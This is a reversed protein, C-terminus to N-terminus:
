EVKGERMMKFKRYKEYDKQSLVIRVSKEEVQVKKAPYHDLIKNAEQIFKIRVGHDPQDPKFPHMARFGEDICAAIRDETIGRKILAEQIPKRRLLEPIIGMASRESYGATRAAQINSMGLEFKNILARKQMPTLRKLGLEAMPPRKKKRRRMKPIRSRGVLVPIGDIEKIETFHVRKKM